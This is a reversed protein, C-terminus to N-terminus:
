NADYDVAVPIHNSEQSQQAAHLLRMQNVGDELTTVGWNAPVPRNGSLWETPVSIAPDEFRPITECNRAKWENIWRCFRFHGTGVAEPCGCEHTEAPLDHGLHGEFQKEGHGLTSPFMFRIQTMVDPVIPLSDYNGDMRRMVRTDSGYGPITLFAEDMCRNNWKVLAGHRKDVAKFQVEFDLDNGRGHHVQSSRLSCWGADTGTEPHSDETEIQLSFLATRDNQDSEYMNAFASVQLIRCGTGNMLAQGGHTLGLDGGSGWFGNEAANGRFGREGAFGAWGQQYEGGGGEDRLYAKVIYNEPCSYPTYLAFGRLEGWAEM